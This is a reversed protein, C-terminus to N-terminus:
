GVRLNGCHNLSVLMVVAPALILLGLAKLGRWGTADDSAAWCGLAAGAIAGAPIGVYMVLTPGLLEDAFGRKLWGLTDSLTIVGGCVGFWLAGGLVFFALAYGARTKM